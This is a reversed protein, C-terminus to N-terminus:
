RPKNNKAEIWRSFYKSSNAEQLLLMKGTLNQERCHPLTGTKEQVFDLFRKSLVNRDFRERIAAAGAKQQDEWLNQEQHLAVCAAPFSECTHCEIGQAGMGEFTLATGVVPTGTGWAELVKGKIGAGFRLPALLARHQRLAARHNEVPGHAYIGNEGKHRSVEGPPYSGYLHLEAEPMEKRIQRWIQDILWRVSDLNPPHRFNGLFCFGNRKGFPPPAADLDTSFPLYSIKEAPFHLSELFSKEWDSVVLAGDTRYLSSLERLLDEGMDTVRPQAIREVSAGSCLLRERGRRVSHLDQTDVLHLANPWLTRARWGFQEEMIFRDYAVLNLNPPLSQLAAETLPSSNPDCTLTSIGTENLEKSFRSPGSPSVASVKWGAKQLCRMLEATRVGAASSVPEPWVYVFFLAHPQAM